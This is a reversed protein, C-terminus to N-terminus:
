PVLEVEIAIPKSIPNPMLNALLAPLKIVGAENGERQKCKVAQDVLIAEGHV